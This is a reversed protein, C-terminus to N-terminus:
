FSIQEIFFYFKIEFTRITRMLFFYFKARYRRHNFLLFTIMDFLSINSKYHCLVTIRFFVRNEPLWTNPLVKTM